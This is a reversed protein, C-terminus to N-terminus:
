PNRMTYIKTLDNSDLHIGTTRALAILVAVRAICFTFIKETESILLFVKRPLAYVVCIRQYGCVLFDVSLLAQNNTNYLTKQWKVGAKNEAYQCLTRICNYCLVAVQLFM